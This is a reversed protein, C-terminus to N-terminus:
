RRPRFLDYPTNPALPAGNLYAPAEPGIQGPGSTNQDLSTAAFTAKVNLGAYAVTRGLCHPPAPILPRPRLSLREAGANAGRIAGGLSRRDKSLSLIVGRPPEPHCRTPSLIVGRPACSSFATSRNAADFSTEAWYSLAM